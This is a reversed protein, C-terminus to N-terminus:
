LHEWGKELQLAIGLMYEWGPGPSVASDNGTEKAVVM